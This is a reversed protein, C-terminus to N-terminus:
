TAPTRAGLRLTTRQASVDVAAGGHEIVASRLHSELAEAARGGSIVLCEDAGFWIVATDAGTIVTSPSAPLADVGPGRGGRGRRAPRISGCISWPTIPYGKEACLVHMTETGYPTIGHPGGAAILKERLAKAYWRWSTSRKPSSAPSASGASESTCATSLPTAGRWSRFHKTDAAM